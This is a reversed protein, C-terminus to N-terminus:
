TLYTKCLTLATGVDGKILTTCVNEVMLNAQLGFQEYLFGKDDVFGGYSTEIGRFEPTSKVYGIAPKGLAYALGIEVVTGSDPEEGRFPSLDAVVGDCEQIQRVCERFIAKAEAATGKKSVGVINPRDLSQSPAIPFLPKLSLEMCKQAVLQAFSPWSPHFVTPGAIYVKPLSM